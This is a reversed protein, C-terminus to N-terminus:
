QIEFYLLNDFMDTIAYLLDTSDNMKLVENILDMQMKRRSKNISVGQYFKVYNLAEYFESIQWAHGLLQEELRSDEDPEFKKPERKKYKFRQLKREIEAIDKNRQMIAKNREWYDTSKKNTSGKTKTSIRFFNDQMDKSLAKVEKNNKARQYKLQGRLKGETKSIIRKKPKKAM